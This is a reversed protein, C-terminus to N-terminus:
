EDLETTKQNLVNMNNVFVFKTPKMFDAPDLGIRDESFLGELKDAKEWLKGAVEYQKEKFAVNALTRYFNISAQKRGEKDAQGTIGYLIRAEEIIYRSQRDKIDYEKQLFSRIMGDTRGIDFMEYVREYKRLMEQETEDLAPANPNHPDPERLLEDNYYQLYRDLKTEDIKLIKNARALSLLKKAMEDYEDSPM